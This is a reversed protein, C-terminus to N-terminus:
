IARGDAELLYGLGRITRIIVGAPNLKKRLRSVYIEIANPSADDDFSFLQAAIQEKSVVQAPKHLLIELLCLERRPLQLAIDDLTVTRSITDFSLPGVSLIPASTGQSRRVLARLRAELECLEFPKSLYDDAGANLGRVRDELDTRATLVLVPTQKGRARLRKLVEIGDLKPLTLDLVILDFYETKLLEDALAGNDVQDVTYDLSQLACQLGDALQRDDEVLLLHM